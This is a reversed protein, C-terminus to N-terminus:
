RESGMVEMRERCVTRAASLWQRMGHDEIVDPHKAAYQLYWSLMGDWQRIDGCPYLTWGLEEVSWNLKASNRAMSTTAWNPPEDQGGCTIPVIHDITAGLEWYARRTADTKWNPHYPFDDAMLHSLVRLVPPFLLLDGSYRDVFGARVFVRTYDLPHFRRKAIPQRVHPYERGLVLRAENLEDRDVARCIAEIIRCKETTEM